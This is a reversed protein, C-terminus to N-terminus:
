LNADLSAGSNLSQLAKSFFCQVSQGSEHVNADRYTKLRREMHPDLLHTNATKEM